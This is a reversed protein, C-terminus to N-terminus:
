TLSGFPSRALMAALRSSVRVNLCSRVDLLSAFSSLLLRNLFCLLSSSLSRKMLSFSPCSHSSYCFVPLLLFQFRFCMLDRSNSFNMKLRGVCLQALSTATHKSEWLYNSDEEDDDQTKWSFLLFCIETFNSKHNTKERIERTYATHVHEDPHHSSVHFFAISFNFFFRNFSFSHAPGDEIGVSSVYSIITCTDSFRLFFLHNLSRKEHKNLFFQFSVLWVVKDDGDFSKIQEENLRSQQLNQSKLKGM